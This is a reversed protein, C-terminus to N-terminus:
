RHLPPILPVADRDRLGRDQLDSEPIDSDPLATLEARTFLKMDTSEGNEPHNKPTETTIAAYAIDTHFHDSNGGFPHTSHAIPQPHLVADSLEKVRIHPQLISIQALDYGSEERLEHTITQWPTEHLEVHGGFQM